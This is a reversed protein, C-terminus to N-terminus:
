PRAWVLMLLLVIALGAYSWANAQVVGARLDRASPAPLMRRIVHYETVVSVVFFPVLLVLMASPVMWWLDNEYPILWPAQWSVALFRHWRSDLGYAQDGGSLIQAVALLIWACPIGLFSSVLNAIASSNTCSWWGARLRRALVFAEVLIVPVLAIAAGPLTVFIMPVGADAEAYPPDFLLPAGVLCCVGASRLVTIMGKHM